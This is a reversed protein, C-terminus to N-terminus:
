SLAVVGLIPMLVPVNVAVGLLTANVFAAKGSPPVGLLKVILAAAIGVVTVM